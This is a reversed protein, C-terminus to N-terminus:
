RSELRARLSANELRLAAVDTETESCKQRLLIAEDRLDELMARLGEMTTQKRARSKKASERNRLKRKHLVLEREDKTMNRVAMSTVGKLDGIKDRPFKKREEAQKALRLKRRREKEVDDVRQATSSVRGIGTSAAQVASVRRAVMDAAAAEAAAKLTREMAVSRGSKLRTLASGPMNSDTVGADLAPPTQPVVPTSSIALGSPEQLSSDGALSLNDEDNDPSFPAPALWDNMPFDDAAFALDANETHHSSLVSTVDLEDEFPNVAALTM